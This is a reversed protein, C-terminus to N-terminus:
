FLTPNGSQWLAHRLADEDWGNRLAERARRSRAVRGARDLEQWRWPQTKGGGRGKAAMSALNESQTGPVVHPPRGLAEWARVCLPNDCVVHLAVEHDQLPRGLALALAYRHPRVVRQRGDRKMWFRGYSDDAISGIWWHCDQPGPGKIVYRFFREVESDDDPELTM